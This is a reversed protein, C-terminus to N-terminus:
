TRSNSISPYQARIRALLQIGTLSEAGLQFLDDDVGVSPVGLLNRLTSILFQQEPTLSEAVGRDTDVASPDVGFARRANGPDSRSSAIGGSVAIPQPSLGTANANSHTLPPRYEFESSARTCRAWDSVAGAAWLSGFASLLSHIDGAAERDISVAMIQQKPREAHQRVLAALAHGPGVELLAWGEQLLNQVGDPFTRAAAAAAGM